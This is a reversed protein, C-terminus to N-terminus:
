SPIINQYWSEMDHDQFWNRVFCKGFWNNEKLHTYMSESKWIENRVELFYILNHKMQSWHPMELKLWNLDSCFPFFTVVFFYNKWYCGHTGSSSWITIVSLSNSLFGQFKSVFFTLCYAVLPFFSSIKINVILPM